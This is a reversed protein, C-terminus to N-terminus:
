SLATTCLNRITAALAPARHLPSAHLIYMCNINGRNNLTLNYTTSWTSNLAASVHVVHWIGLGKRPLMPWLGHVFHACMTCCAHISVYNTGVLSVSKGHTYKKDEYQQAVHSCLLASAKAQGNSEWLDALFIWNKSQIWPTPTFLPLVFCGNRLCIQFFIQCSCLVILIAIALPLALLCNCWCLVTSMYPANNFDGVRLRLSVSDAPCSNFSISYESGFIAGNLPKRKSCNPRRTRPPLTALTM